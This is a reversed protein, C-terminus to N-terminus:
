ALVQPYHISSYGPDILDLHSHTKSHPYTHLLVWNTDMACALPAIIFTCFCSKTILHLCSGVSCIKHCRGPCPSLYLTPLRPHHISLYYKRIAKSDISHLHTSSIKQETAATIFYLSSIGNCIYMCVHMCACMRMYACMHVRVIGDALTHLQPTAWLSPEGGDLLEVCPCPVSRM